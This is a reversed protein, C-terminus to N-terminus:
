GNREIVFPDNAIDTNSEKCSTWHFVRLTWQGRIDTNSTGRLKQLLFLRTPSRASKSELAPTM